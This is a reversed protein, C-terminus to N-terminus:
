KLLSWKLQEKATHFVQGVTQEGLPIDESRLAVRQVVATSDAEMIVGDDCIEDIVLMVIDLNQYLAKEEVNRRLVQSLSNFLCQLMSLLILENDHSNGIVYFFLDVNSKYVCTLGNLMIIEANARYTKNFLDKEFTKQEKVTPLVVPDYYKALVRNGDNNLVVIGKVIYMTPDFLGGM